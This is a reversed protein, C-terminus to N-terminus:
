DRVKNELLISEQKFWAEHHRAIDEKEAPRAYWRNGYRKWNGDLDMLAQNECGSCNGGNDLSLYLYNRSNGAVCRVLGVSHFYGRSPEKELLNRAIKKKGPRELVLTQM